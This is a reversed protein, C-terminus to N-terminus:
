SFLLGSYSMLAIVQPAVYLIYSYYTFYRIVVKKLSKKLIM